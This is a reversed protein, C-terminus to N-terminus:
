RTTQWLEHAVSVRRWLAEREDPPVDALTLGFVDGLVGYWDAATGLERPTGGPLRRYVRGRLIDVGGADRRQVTAVQVFPSRPDTSLWEHRGAFEAETAVDARFDMAQFSGYRDHTFRWGLFEVTSPALAFRFPGDAYEGARLPLPEYLADGLGVDVLWMGDPNDRSSLGHVTLALHNGNAGPPLPQGHAQVGARHRRVAYGLASLLLAFGGNLHYCYGGRGRIIRTASELGSVSTPRGLQIELNEYPVRAVHARHLARLGEVSPPGAHPVGLRALYRNVDFDLSV